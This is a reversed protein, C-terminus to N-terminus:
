SGFEPRPYNKFPTCTIERKACTIEWKATLHSVWAKPPTRTEERKTEIISDLKHTRQARRRRGKRAIPHPLHTGTSTYMYFHLPLHRGTLTYRYFHLPSLTSYTRLLNVIGLAGYFSLRRRTWDYLNTWRLSVRNVLSVSSHWEAPLGVDSGLISISSNISRM